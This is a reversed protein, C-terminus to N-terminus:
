VNSSNAKKLRAKIEDRTGSLYPFTKRCGGVIVRPESRFKTRTPHKARRLGKLYEGLLFQVEKTSTARRLRIACTEIIGRARTLSLDRPNLQLLKAGTAIVSRTLSYALVGSIIEKKVMDASRVNLTDLDVMGKISRLDTEVFWRNKYVELLQEPTLEKATTFFYFREAKKGPVNLTVAVLRGKIEPCDPLESNKLDARSPKWIVQWDGDHKAEKKGLLSAAREKQMRVLPVHTYNILGWVVSFVGFNRDAIVLSRKPLRKMISRSLAQESDNISGIEPRLATATGLHHAVVIRAKPRFSGHQNSCPTFVKRISETDMLSITSGDLLYCNYGCIKNQAKHELAIQESVYDAFQEIKEVPLRQRARSLGGPSDSLSEFKLKKSGVALQAIKDLPTTYKLRQIAASLSNDGSGKQAVMLWMTFADSFVDDRARLTLGEQHEEAFWRFGYKLFTERLTTSAM